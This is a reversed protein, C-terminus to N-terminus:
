SRVTRRGARGRSPRVRRGVGQCLGPRDGVAREVRDSVHRLEQVRGHEIVESQRVRQRPVQPTERPPRANTGVERLIPHVDPHARVDLEARIADDLFRQGFTALCACARAQRTKTCRSGCVSSTVTSSSPTPISRSASPGRRCVTVTAEAQDADPLAHGSESPRKLHLTGDSFARAQGDLQRQRDLLRPHPALAEARRRTVRLM